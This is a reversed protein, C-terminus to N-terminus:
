PANALRTDLDESAKSIEEGITFEAVKALINGLGSNEPPSPLAAIERPSLGPRLAARDVFGGAAWNSLCGATATATAAAEPSLIGKQAEDAIADILLRGAEPMGASFLTGFSMMAIARAAAGGTGAHSRLSAVTSATDTGEVGTAALIAAEIGPLGPHLVRGGDRCALVLFSAIPADHEETSASMDSSIAALTQAFTRGPLHRASLIGYLSMRERITLVPCADEAAAPPGGRPIDSARGRRDAVVAAVAAQRTMGHTELVRAAHSDRESFTAVLVHAGTVEDGPAGGSQVHIAARQLVRQFGATPKTEGPPGEGDPHAEGLTYALIEAEMDSPDAGCARMVAAAERDTTLALLMHELTALGSGQDRARAMARRITEDLEKSVM